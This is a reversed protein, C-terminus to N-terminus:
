SIDSEEYIEIGKGLCKYTYEYSEIYRDFFKTKAAYDVLRVVNNRIVDVDGNLHQTDIFYLDDSLKGKLYMTLNYGEVQKNYVYSCYVHYDDYGYGTLDFDMLRGM